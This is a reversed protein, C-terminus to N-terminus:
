YRAKSEVLNWDGFINIERYSSIMMDIMSWWMDWLWKPDGLFVSYTVWMRSSIQTKKQIKRHNQTKKQGLLALTQFAFVPQTTPFAQAQFLGYFCVGVFTQKLLLGFFVCRRFSAAVLRRFNRVVVQNWKYASQLWM